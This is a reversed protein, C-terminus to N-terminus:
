NKFVLSFTTNVGPQSTVLLNGDHKKMINKSLSLGIGSGNKKTTYFPIFIQHMIKEEIGKGNDSLLLVTKDPEVQCGLRILPDPMGKLAHISNNILNIMVQEILKTDMSVRAHSPIPMMELRVGAKKVAGEMLVRIGSLFEKVNTIQRDPVPVNSITRYDNVFVLLGDSRKKITNAATNIDALDEPDLEDLTKIEGNEAQTLEKITSALSSVPTFSNLMEHALIRIVNHWAEIEKQEIESRIDQFAIILYLSDLLRIEIVQLSLQKKDVDDGFEVLTKGGGELKRIEEELWPLNEAIRHWYKHKPQGLIDCAAKNLFLVERDNHELFLDEKRISIIGLNVHELINKFYTYQAEKEIKNRKFMKIIANFDEYVRAFSDGRKSPSFYVSFDETKLADLFKVLAYNTNNVYGILAYVQLLVLMGIGTSSFWMGNVVLYSFLVCFLLISLIRFTVQITFKKIM